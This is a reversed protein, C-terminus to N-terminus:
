SHPNVRLGIVYVYIPHVSQGLSKYCLLFFRYLHLPKGWYFDGDLSCTRWFVNDNIASSMKWMARDEDLVNM